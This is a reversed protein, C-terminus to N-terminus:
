EATRPPPRSRCALKRNAEALKKRRNEDDRKYAADAGDHIFTKWDM